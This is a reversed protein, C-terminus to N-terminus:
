SEKRALVDFSCKLENKVKLMGGVASVLKIHFDTQRIPFEGQARMSDEGTTTVEGAIWINKQTVGHLSLDGIVRARYHGERLRSASVNSSTFVIEPYKDVELVENRMTHEIEQRDKEKGVNIVTLSRTDISVNVSASEFTGPVFELEGTFVKVAIVPDHGFASFLGEAFAKITFTSEGAVLQYRALKPKPETMM